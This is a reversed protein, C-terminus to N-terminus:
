RNTGLFQKVHPIVLESGYFSDGHGAGPISVFQIKESVKSSGKVKEYIGDKEGAMMLCPKGMNKLVDTQDARIDRVAAMLAETDNQLFRAVASQSKLDAPAWQHLTRIGERLGEMDYEYAHAALVIYSDFREPFWRMLGFSGWGGMSFGMYHAKAVGLEDLVKIVDLARIYHSYQAPDHPKDSKGHGRADILVLRYSDKFADVYGYEYWDEISGYLGHQLVLCPGKGEVEYHIKQNGNLAYSM